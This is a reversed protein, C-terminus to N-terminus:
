VSAVPNRRSAAAHLSEDFALFSGLHRQQRRTQLVVNLRLIRNAHHLDEDFPEIQALESENPNVRRRRAPRRIVRRHQQLEVEVAVEVADL